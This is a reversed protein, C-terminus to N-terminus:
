PQGEATSDEGSSADIDKSIDDNEEGTTEPKLEIELSSDSQIIVDARLQTPDENPQAAEHEHLEDEIEKLEELWLRIENGYESALNSLVLQRHFSGAGEKLLDAAEASPFRRAPDPAVLGRCFNMLLSNCTVEAPLLEPLIQPLMRKAELLEAYSRCRAFIPQGALLEILV